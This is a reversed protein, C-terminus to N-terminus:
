ILSIDFLLKIYIQYMELVWKYKYFKWKNGKENLIM